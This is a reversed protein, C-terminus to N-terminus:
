LQRNGKVAKEVGGGPGFMDRLDAVIYEPREWAPFHGGDPHERQLVTPGLQKAWSLPLTTVDNPFQGFGVKVDMWGRLREITAMINQRFEYYLRTSAAPEAVSFWYISVWTCIEDDTWPYEDAWAHLKEYVWALLGVPSDTLGYGLTQPRTSQIAGYCNGESFFRATKEVGAKEKRTFPTVM